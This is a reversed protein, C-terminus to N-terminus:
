WSAKLVGPLAGKLALDRFRLRSLKFKRYVGHARGSLVCRNQIRVRSSNRPLSALKKQATYRVEKPLSTDLFISQLLARHAEHKQFLKRRKEDCRNANFM